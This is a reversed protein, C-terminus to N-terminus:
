PPGAGGKRRRFGPVRGPRSVPAAVAAAMRRRVVQRAIALLRHPLVVARLHECAAILGTENM